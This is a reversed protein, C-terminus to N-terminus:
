VIRKIDELRLVEHFHLDELSRMCTNRRILIMFVANFYVEYSSRKERRLAVKINLNKEHNRFKRDDCVNIKEIFDDYSM